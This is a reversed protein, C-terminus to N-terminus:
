KEVWGKVKTLMQLVKSERDNPIGLCYEVLILFDEKPVFLFSRQNLSIPHQATFAGRTTMWSYWVPMCPFTTAAFMARRIMRLMEYRPKDSTPEAGWEFPNFQCEEGTVDELVRFEGCFWKLDSFTMLALSPM